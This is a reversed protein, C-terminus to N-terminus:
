LDRELGDGLLRHAVRHHPLRVRKRGVGDPRHTVTRDALRLMMQPMAATEFECKTTAPAVNMRLERLV